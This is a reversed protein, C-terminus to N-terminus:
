VDSMMSPWAKAPSLPDESVTLVIVAERLVVEDTGKMYYLTNKNLNVTIIDGRNLIDGLLSSNLLFGKPKVRIYIPGWIGESEGEGVIRPKRRSFTKGYAVSAATIGSSHAKHTASKIQM